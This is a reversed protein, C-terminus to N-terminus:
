VKGSLVFPRSVSAFLLQGNVFNNDTSLGNIYQGFLVSAYRICLPSVVSICRVLFPFAVSLVSTSRVGLPRTFCSVSVQRFRVPYFLHVLYVSFNFVVINICTYIAYINFSNRHLQNQNTRRFAALPCYQYRAQTLAAQNHLRVRVRLDIIFLLFEHFKLFRIPM